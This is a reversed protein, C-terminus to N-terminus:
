ADPHGELVERMKDKLVAFQYPKKIFAAPHKDGFIEVVSNEDYGSSLLVKVDPKLKVLRRFIEDGHMRPMTMDLLVAVVENLNGAFAALGSEGDVATIVDFGMEKLMLSAVSRVTEEDDVVLVLGSSRWQESNRQPARREVTQKGAVPFLVRFTTGKGPSSQLKIAGKHGKVIGLVAALGLGRGTFKTTFFPDFIRSLTDTGMGVGTDSVELYVYHGAVPNTNMLPSLLYDKGFEGQGTSVSIIGEGNELAESANTVLNMLIQRIQGADAEVLPLPDAFDYKLLAKKSVSIELLNTM